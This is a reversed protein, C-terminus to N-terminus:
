FKLKKSFKCFTKAIAVNGLIAIVPVLIISSGLESAMETFSLTQNNLTTSFPPLSLEPLGSQVTGTLSTENIYFDRIYKKIGKYNVL